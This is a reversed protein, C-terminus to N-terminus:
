WVRVQALRAVETSQRMALIPLLLLQRIDRLSCNYMFCFTSLSVNQCWRVGVGDGRGFVLHNHLQQLSVAWRHLLAYM